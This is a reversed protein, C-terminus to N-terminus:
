LAGGETVVEDFAKKDLAMEDCLTLELKFIQGAM